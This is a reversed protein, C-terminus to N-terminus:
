EQFFIELAKYAEARRQDMEALKANFQPSFARDNASLRTFAEDYYAKIAALGAPGDEGDGERRCNHALVTGAAERSSEPLVMFDINCFEEVNEMSTPMCAQDVFRASAKYCVRGIVTLMVYQWNKEPGGTKDLTEVLLDRAALQDDLYRLDEFAAVADRGEFYGKKNRFIIGQIGDALAALAVARAQLKPYGDAEREVVRFEELIEQSMLQYNRPHFLDGDLKWGLVQKLRGYLEEDETVTATILLQLHATARELLGRYAVEKDNTQSVLEGIVALWRDYSEGFDCGTLGAVADDLRQADNPEKKACGSACLATLALGTVLVVALRSPTDM